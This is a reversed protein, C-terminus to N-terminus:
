IEKVQFMANVAMSENRMGFRAKYGKILMAAILDGNRLSGGPLVKEVTHKLGYSGTKYQSCPQVIQNLIAFASQVREVDFLKHEAKEQNYIEVKSLSGRSAHNGYASLMVGKAECAPILNDYLVAEAEELPLQDFDDIQQFSVIAGRAVAAM